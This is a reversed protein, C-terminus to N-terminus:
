LCWISRLTLLAQLTIRNPIIRLTFTNIEKFQILWNIKTITFYHTKNEIRVSNNLHAKANLSKLFM